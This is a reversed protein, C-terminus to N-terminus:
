RPGSSGKDDALYRLAQELLAPPMNGGYASIYIAAMGAVHPTAMSTGASWSYGGPVDSIVM